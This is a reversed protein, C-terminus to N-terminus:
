DDRVFSLRLPENSNQRLEMNMVGSDSFYAVLTATPTSGGTLGVQAVLSDGNIRGTGEWYVGSFTLRTGLAGQESSLSHVTLRVFETSATISRWTGTFEDPQAVQVVESSVKNECAQVTALLVMMWALRRM